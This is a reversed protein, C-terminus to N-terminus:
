DNEVCGNNTNILYFLIAAISFLFLSPIILYLTPAGICNNVCGGGCYCHEFSVLPIDYIHAAISLAGILFVLCVPWVVFWKVEDM